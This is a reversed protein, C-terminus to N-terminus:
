VFRLHFFSVATTAELASALSKLVWHIRRIGQVPLGLNLARYGDRLSLFAIANLLILEKKAATPM